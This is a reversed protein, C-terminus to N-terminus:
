MNLKKTYEMFCRCQMSKFSSGTVKADRAQQRAADVVIAFESDPAPKGDLRRSGGGGISGRAQRM